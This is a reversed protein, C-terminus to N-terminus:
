SPNRRTLEGLTAARLMEGYVDDTYSRSLDSFAFENRKWASYMGRGMMRRQVNAPQRNFWAEGSEVEDPWTAGRVIPVPACNHVAIGGAFFSHDDEVELDYVKGHYQPHHIINGISFPASDIAPLFHFLSSSSMIRLLWSCSVADSIADNSGPLVLRATSWRRSASPKFVSGAVVPASWDSRQTVSRSARSPVGMFSHSFRLYTSSCADYRSIVASIPMLVRESIFSMLSQSMSGILEASASALLRALSGLKRSLNILSPPVYPAAQARACVRWLFQHVNQVGPSSANKSASRLAPRSGMGCSAMVDYLTSKANGPQLNATSHSGRQCIVFLRKSRSRLRSAFSVAIPHVTRRSSVRALMSYLTLFTDSAKLASADVWGRQTLIPHEPTVIVGDNGVRVQFLDGEYDRCFVNCVRRYRGKHTLVLDGVRVQEIPVNGRLTTVVQGPPLCRGRHHDNLADDLKHISGHQRVCSMCTRLDLAARWMWGTLVRPNAAFAAHNSLRYSYLQMTRTSNEAWTYPIGLWQTMGRAIARPNQGQATLGLMTDAFDRAANDGFAQMRTVFADSEAYNVINQLAAPDPRMWVSALVQANGVQATVADLAADLGLQLMETQAEAGVQRAVAGFDRMEVQIRALLQQYTTMDRLAQPSFDEGREIMGQIEDSLTGIAREINPTLRRYADQLRLSLPQYRRELELRWDRRGAVMALPSTQGTGRPQTPNDSM